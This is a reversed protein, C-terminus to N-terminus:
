RGRGPTWLRAPLMRFPESTPHGADNGVRTVFPRGATFPAGFLVTPVRLGGHTVHLGGGGGRRLDEDRGPGEGREVGARIVSSGSESCLAPRSSPATADTPQPTAPVPPKATACRRNVAFLSSLAGVAVVAMPVGLAPGAAYLEGLGRLMLALGDADGNGAPLLLPGAPDATSRAASAPLRPRPGVQLLATVGFRHLGRVAAEFRAPARPQRRWHGADLATGPVPEGTVTSVPPV